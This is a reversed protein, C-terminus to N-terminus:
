APPANGISTFRTLFQIAAVAYVGVQAAGPVGKLEGVFAAVAALLTIVARAYGAAKSYANFLNM